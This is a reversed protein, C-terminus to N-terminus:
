AWVRFAGVISSSYQGQTSNLWVRSANMLAAFRPAYVVQVTVVFVIEDALIILSQFLWKKEKRM